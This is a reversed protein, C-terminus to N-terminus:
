YWDDLVNVAAGLLGGAVTLGLGVWFLVWM